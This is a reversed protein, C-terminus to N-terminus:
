LTQTHVTNRSANTTSFSPSCLIQMCTCRSYFMNLSFPLPNTLIWLLSTEHAPLILMLCLTPVNSARIRRLVSLFRRKGWVSKKDDWPPPDYGYHTSDFSFRLKKYLHPCTHPTVLQNNDCTRFYYVRGVAARVEQGRLRYDTPRDNGNVQETKAAVRDRERTKKKKRRKKRALKVVDTCVCAAFVGTCADMGDKRSSIRLHRSTLTAPASLPSYDNM